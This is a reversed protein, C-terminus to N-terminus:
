ASAGVSSSLNNRLVYLLIGGNKYYEVELKTDLRCIVPVDITEGTTRTVTVTMRMRPTIDGDIGKVDITETGDLGISKRTFGDAFQLPLVGLGILNSRHIREIGEAIVARVGLLHTGKAAWDRSSGQGYDKGAIVVLPVGEKRYRAAAEHVPLIEGSPEHRTWGGRVDPTMENQIRINAFTGRIMIDHNVRRAAFSNFDEPAIGCSVLHKGAASTPTIIGVPSIHDTTISDGLLALPRARVINEIGQLPKALAAFFPPEKMYDDEPWTFTKGSPVDVNQWHKEGDFMDAYLTKFREANLASSICTQLEEQSPWIDSLYVPKGQQDTGLPETTLDHNINGAIAYAVVLPPSAIYNIKALTHIRGEFNRNGSLIAGAAVDYKEISESIDAAIPGSNGMCTMCGYGTLNFGLADLPEQLGLTAFYDAVVRSGPSLSTKVWPKVRLGRQVANRALLGAALMVSPNSTNTCSTISAIILAGHELSWSKGAVPAGGDALPAYDGFVSDKFSKKADTLAFRDQPRKPGAMSPVVESLDITLTENYTPQPGDADHWLGQIRAYKEVLDLHDGGRATSELYKLTEGDIPFFGMTAGYEPSMNALTARDSLPLGTLGPGFFEVFAGVVKYARLAEVVTLVADTATAGPRLSGVLRCGVVRPIVMSVPQGLMASGGEIGGVGWGLVSLCNVMPTHSDTGLLTEPFAYSKGGEEATWITRALAEVNVQHCIGTGPPIVRFNEFSKQAWRLFSYRGDNREFEVEINKEAADGSGQFDVMVSHDVVLDAPIAPTVFSPDGGARAMAGRMAAFDAMLPIGASDNMLLRTPHFAIDREAAKPATAAVFNVLDDQTVSVGDEHRLLNEFLVKLSRPLSMVSGGGAESAAELSFYNYTRGAAELARLTGLTDLSKKM